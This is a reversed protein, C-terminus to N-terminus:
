DKKFHAQLFISIIGWFALGFIWTTQQVDLPVGWIYVLEPLQTKVIGSLIGVFLAYFITFLIWTSKEMGDITGSKRRISRRSNGM